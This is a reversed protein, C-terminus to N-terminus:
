KAAAKTSPLRSVLRLSVTLGELQYHPRLFFKSTYYGPNGEVEEVIVEAAALPKRAKTEQTSGAPDGDVYNMIWENLWKQMDERERFSGIKDRVICKLYHAFRCCAFMYPLRAALNANATADADYYEAPKNLSQAGIFAALDTNKRHVLPMFGNKALEAERRDSIAIETPCKLDVGGDDSPFTHAPLDTVVGGSEVGRISTCWGYEKFSRNINAAM